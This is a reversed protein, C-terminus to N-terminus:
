SSICEELYRYEPTLKGQFVIMAKRLPESLGDPGDAASLDADAFEAIFSRLSRSFHQSSELPLECPLNDVAMIVPGRGSFGDTIKRTVPDFVYCPAEPSTCKQTCEIGGEIDCSIDGIVRLSPPESGGYLEKLRANTVLRPVAPTWFIANILIGIHPLYRGFTCTYDQPNKWYHELDFSASPDKPTFLDEEKFVVKYIHHRSIKEQQRLALLEEPTLTLHPLVSLIEQAGTSVNGYGTFAIVLPTIREDLGLANLRGGVELVDAQAETLSVYEHAMMLNSFVSEIGEGKLREGFASLSNIMGALGAFHGFFVLRRHDADVITEYDFLTSKQDVIKKLMPMNYTQRKITHSFFMYAKGPMLLEPPIEKVGLILDCASMDERLEAGAQAYAGDSFIRQPAEATPQVHFSLGHTTILQGVDEPTLPARREWANKDERRIGVIM